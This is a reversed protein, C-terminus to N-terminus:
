SDELGDSRDSRDPDVSDDPDDIDDVNGSHGAEQEEVENDKPVSSNMAQFTLEVPMLYGKKTNCEKCAVVCNKKTSKGGRAVPVLHDMTLLEKAFHGACYYCVGRGIQQRWWLSKRLLQAKHRERKIHESGVFGDYVM